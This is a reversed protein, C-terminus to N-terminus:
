SGALPIAQNKKFRKRAMADKTKRRQTRTEFYTSRKLERLLGSTKVKNRLDRIARELNDHHVTVQMDREERETRL